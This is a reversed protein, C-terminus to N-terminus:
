ARADVDAAFVMSGASRKKELRELTNEPTLQGAM